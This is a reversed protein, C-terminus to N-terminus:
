ISEIELRYNPSVIGFNEIEKWRFVIVHAKYNFTCVLIFMLTNFM